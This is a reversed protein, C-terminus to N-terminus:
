WNWARSLTVKASDLVDKGPNDLHLNATGKWTAGAEFNNDVLEVELEKKRPTLTASVQKGEELEVSYGLEYATEKNQTAYDVQASVRADGFASMLKVRATKAQVLWSPNLDVKRDGVDVQREAGVQQVQGGEVDVSLRTGQTDATLKLDTQANGFDRTVEYGLKVDDSASAEGKFSVEKLFDKNVGSDYKCNMNTKHSGISLMKGWSAKINDISASGINRLNTTQIEARNAFASALMMTVM